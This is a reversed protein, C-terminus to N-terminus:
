PHVTMLLWFRVDLTSLRWIAVDPTPVRMSFTIKKYLGCNWIVYTNLHLLFLKSLYKHSTLNVFCRWAGHNICDANWPKVGLLNIDFITNNRQNLQCMQLGHRSTFFMQFWHLQCLIRCMTVLEWWGLYWYRGVGGGGGGRHSVGRHLRVMGSELVSTM